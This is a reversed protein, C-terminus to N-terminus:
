GIQTWPGQIALTIGDHQINVFYTKGSPSFVGGTFESESGSNEALKYVHRDPTIGVIFPHNNDECVVLDGWPAMTINDPNNLLRLDNPELFLELEGTHNWEDSTGNSHLPFYRFIQGRQNMGGSTCAFYFCNDHFCMGEGRAFIAAGAERGRKRLDDVKPTVNDLTIWDV